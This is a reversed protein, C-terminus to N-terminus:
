LLGAPSVQGVASLGPVTVRGGVPEAAMHPRNELAPEAIRVPAEGLAGTPAIVGPTTPAAQPVAPTPHHQQRAGLSQYLM